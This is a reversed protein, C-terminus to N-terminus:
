AIKDTRPNFVAFVGIIFVVDDTDYFINREAVRQAIKGISFLLRDYKFAQVRKFFRCQGSFFFLLKKDRLLLKNKHNAQLRTM